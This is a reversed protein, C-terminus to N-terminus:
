QHVEKLPHILKAARRLKAAPASSSTTADRDADPTVTLAKFGRAIALRAQRRTFGADQMLWREFNRVTPLGSTIPLAPQQKTVMAARAGPHMPFTVVSIEYLEVALLQRRAAGKQSRARIAKFGISLGDLAGEKMLTLVEDARRIGPLLRGKVYLGKRDERIVDWIGIPERPDHQYLMKISLPSQRKLSARFAGPAVMDRGLDVTNFLSAYGEFVGDSSVDELAVPAYKMEREAFDHPNIMIMPEAQQHRHPRM